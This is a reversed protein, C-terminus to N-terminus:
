KESGKAASSAGEAEKLQSLLQSFRDPVAQSSIDEFARRLNEDIEQEVRSRNTKQTM